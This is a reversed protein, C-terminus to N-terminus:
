IEVSLTLKRHNGAGCGGKNASARRPSGRRTKQKGSALQLITALEGHLDVRLAEGEPTVAIRSILPRITATADERSDPNELM